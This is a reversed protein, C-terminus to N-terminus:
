RHVSGNKATDHPRIRQLALIGTGLIIFADTYSRCGRRDSIRALSDSRDRSICRNWRDVSSWYLHKRNLLTCDLIYTGCGIARGSGLDITGGRRGPRLRGGGGGRRRDKLGLQGCRRFGRGVVGRALGLIWHSLDIRFTLHTRTRARERYWERGNKNM